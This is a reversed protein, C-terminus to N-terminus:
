VAALEDVWYGKRQYHDHLSIEYDRTLLSEETYEPSEKITKRDLNVFVKREGWSVREIWQPSVLVKKGPWWNHTDVVLYRIAWTEDDVIFDNVHGIEGDLAQIHHGSVGDTSRLHRDWAKEPPALERWQERAERNHIFHPYAGWSYPGGWYTPYLYHGYYAQEFQHSVPKDNDLSPSDEIQKKTLDVAINKAEKNVAALAYPSILVQRDALWTGTEAVLYRITWHRDDFYFEKVKGIEGDLSDLKYGELTKTKILM